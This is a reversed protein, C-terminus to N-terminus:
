DHADISARAQGKDRDEQGRAGSGAADEGEAGGGVLRKPFIERLEDAFRDLYEDVSWVATASGARLRIGTFGDGLTLYDVEIDEAVHDHIARTMRRRIGPELEQGSEVRVRGERRAGAALRMKAEGDLHHLRTLFLDAMRDTLSADVLTSLADEALRRFEAAVKERLDEMFDERSESLESIWAERKRDVDHRADQELKRKLEDAAARARDLIEDQRAELDQLREDLAREKAVARESDQQAVALRGRIHEERREMARTIPGYLFRHLLWVLILFNIIQAAVTIWDLQM